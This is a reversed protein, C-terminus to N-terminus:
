RNHDTLRATGISGGMFFVYATLYLTLTAMFVGNQTVMVKNTALSTGSSSPKTAAALSFCIQAVHGDSSPHCASQLSEGVEGVHNSLQDGM